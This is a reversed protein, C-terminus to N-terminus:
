DKPYADKVAKAARYFSGTRDLTGQDIDHWLKDLQESLKLYANVRNEYYNPTYEEGFIQVVADLEKIYEHTCSQRLDTRNAPLYTLWTDDPRVGQPGGMIKKTEKDFKVFM